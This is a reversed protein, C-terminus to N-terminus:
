KKWIEEQTVLAYEPDNSLPEDITPMWYCGASDRYVERNLCNALKLLERMQIPDKAWSTGVSLNLASGKQSCLTVM